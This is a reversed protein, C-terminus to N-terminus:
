AGTERGSPGGSVSEDFLAAIWGEAEPAPLLVLTRGRIWAEDEKSDECITRLLREALADNAEADLDHVMVLLTNRDRKRLMAAVARKAAAIAVAKGDGRRGTVPALGSLDGQVRAGPFGYAALFGRVLQTHAADEGAVFVRTFM